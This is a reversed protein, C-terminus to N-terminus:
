LRKLDNLGWIRKTFETNNKSVLAIVKGDHSWAAKVLTTNKTAQLLEQNAKTLDEQIVLRTGKLKRRNKICLERTKYNQFKVIIARPKGPEKKGIRHSRDIDTPNLNLGLHQSALDMMLVDTNENPKEEVGFVRICNRRSYQELQNLQNTSNNLKDTLESIEDQMAKLESSTKEAEVEIDHIKGSNIEIQKLFKDLKKDLARDICAQLKLEFDQSAIVKTVVQTVIESIEKEKTNSRTSM